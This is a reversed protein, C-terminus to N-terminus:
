FSYRMGLAGQASVDSRLDGQDSSFLGASAIANIRGFTYSYIGNAGVGVVNDGGLGSDFYNVYLNGVISSRPDLTRGLFLQGYYTEDTMGSLPSNFGGQPVLYRRNAYGAGVGFRYPGANAVYIGDVGRGRFNATTVNGLSPNLCQGVDDGSTGFVCGGFQNGFPDPATNFSTPLTALANGVSRGFSQVSDYVGVQLGSGESAAYSISGTYIMSDYRRGVRGQVTTRPSPRWMVGADWFLGDTDYAIRRPSAPDTVFRGGGDTVPVGGVLLPDRQSLEIKEYGVGGILAVSGSVPLVADIRAFTGEYRQDLQGADERQWAGSLTLGVPLVTGPRVGVSATALHSTSDDYFDFSPAGPAIGTPSSSEVKTYGFRYGASVSAPGVTTAYSPGAYASYLQSLNSANGAFSGPAAGRIDSRARTAIAGAELTLGPAVLFAASALGSHVDDDPQNDNWSFRHEYRYSVQLQTRRTQVSADIGAALSTYTLVDSNGNLEALVVQNLEIYPTIQRTSQAFAPLAFGSGALLAATFSISRSM